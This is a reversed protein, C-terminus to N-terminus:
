KEDVRLFRLLEGKQGDGRGMVCFFFVYPLQEFFLRVDGAEFVSVHAGLLRIFCGDGEGALM